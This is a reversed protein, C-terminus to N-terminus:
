GPWRAGSIANRMAPFDVFMAFIVLHCSAGIEGFRSVVYIPDVAWQCVSCSAPMGEALGSGSNGCGALASFVPLDFAGSSHTSSKVCIM